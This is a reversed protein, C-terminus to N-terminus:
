NYIPPSLRLEFAVGPKIAFGFDARLQIARM